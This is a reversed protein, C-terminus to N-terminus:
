DGSRVLRKLIVFQGVHYTDHIAIQLLTKVAKEDSRMAHAFPQASALRHAEELGALFEDRVAPWESAEPVRWDQTINPAREGRLRGLWVRHWFNAHEVYTLLSFKAGNPVRAASAIPIRSLVQRPPPFDEGDILQRLAEAATRPDM